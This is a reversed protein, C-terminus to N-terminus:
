LQVRRLAFFVGDWVAFDGAAGFSRVRGGLAAWPEGNYSVDIALTRGRWVAVYKAEQGAPARSLMLAVTSPQGQTLVPTPEPTEFLVQGGARIVARVGYPRDPNVRPRDIPVEFPLPVQRGNAPVTVEALIAMTVIGSGIDTVWVDVTADPPLAVRERYAVTGSVTPAPTTPSSSIVQMETPRNGTCGALAAHVLALAIWTRRTM